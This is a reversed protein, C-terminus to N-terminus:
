LVPLLWTIIYLLLSHLVIDCEWLAIDPRSSGSHVALFMVGKEQSRIYVQRLLDLIWTPYSPSFKSRTHVSSNLIGWQIGNIKLILKCNCFLHHWFMHLQWLRTFLLLTGMVMSVTITVYNVGYIDDGINFMRMIFIVIISKRTAKKM